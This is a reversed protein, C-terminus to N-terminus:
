EHDIGFACIGLDYLCKFWYLWYMPSRPFCMMQGLNGDGKDRMHGNCTTVRTYVEEGHANVGCGIVHVHCSVVFCNPLDM